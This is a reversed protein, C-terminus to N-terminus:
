HDNGSYAAQRAAPKEDSRTILISGSRGQLISNYKEGQNLIEVARLVQEDTRISWAISGEEYFYRSIIENELLSTLEKRFITLDHELTHGLEKQLQAFLDKHLDFYKEKRANILLDNLSEETATQYSFNLKKLFGTFDSYDADSFTFQEITEPEPHTWYYRTAYDFILNRLYLEASIQSLPAPVVEVDPTIMIISDELM